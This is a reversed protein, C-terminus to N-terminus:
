SQPLTGCCWRIIMMYTLPSSIYTSSEIKCLYPSTESLRILTGRAASETAKTLSVSISETIGSPRASSLCGFLIDESFAFSRPSSSTPISNVPAISAFPLPVDSDDAAALGNGRESTAEGAGDADPLRALGISKIDGGSPLLALAGTFLREFLFGHVRKM